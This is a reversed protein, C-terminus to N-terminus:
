KKAPEDEGLLSRLHAESEEVSMLEGRQLEELGARIEADDDPHPVFV